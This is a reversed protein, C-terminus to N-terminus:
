FRTDDMDAQVGFSSTGSPLEIGEEPNAEVDKITKSAARNIVYSDIHKLHSRLFGKFHNCFKQEREEELIKEEDDKARKQSEPIVDDLVNLEYQTFVFEMLKRVFVVALVMLPFVISAKSTKILWLLVLCTLQVLTFLHVRWLKVHRLYVYDPQHKAPILYLMIRDVFQVGRLSSIGMYLFVGFLVPMPIFKLVSTLLSSVGILAFVLIGTVRQERCGEVKPPEGPITTESMVRLSDVHNISLVTAAVFWPMGLVSMVFLLIAIVLLDLHYGFGKKLKNERRNVIVATIQQDMFILISCLLAPVIAAFYTWWPNNFLPIVWGRDPRTPRFTDPVTLKPTPIGVWIDIGTMALFAMFVGFDSIIYRVKTPFFNSNRFNKLAYALVFTGFFLACSFLFVDPVPEHHTECDGTLTGNVAKCDEETVETWNYHTPDITENQYECMCETVNMAHEDFYEGIKVNTKIPYEHSIEFLNEFAEVIFIFSILSSFAEETFRTFYRVLASADTAVLIICIVCTWFGIWVRFSIYDIGFSGCLQYMITEFILIPGTSGIITLPQGSFLHYAVGCIAAGILSEFAAIYDDTADGLLGGFTIIPTICAIYMFVFSALCQINLAHYYESWYFPAKKKIDQILGGFLRGTRALDFKDDDEEKIADSPHIFHQSQRRMESSLTQKPPEIRINPDWTGPPLVTVQELFEDLGALLDERDRAKYAVEHFVDDTMLTAMCRGIERYKKKDETPPGLLLFVFRTPIPVETIESLIKGEALRIFAVMPKEVFDVEGVLVNSAEAGAPIKRLFKAKENKVEKEKQDLSESTGVRGVSGRSETRAGEPMKTLANASSNKRMEGEKMQAEQEMSVTNNGTSQSRGIDSMSRDMGPFMSSKRRGKNYAKNEPEKKKKQKHHRHRTLLAERAIIRQDEELVNTAVLHDLALDIIQELDEAEMNLQVGGNRIFKRLEFLSHLSLTAVHPKSWRGAGHDVNEEYKVWRATEKWELLRGEKDYFLEEMESYVPPTEKQNEGEGGLLFQVRQQPTEGVENEFNLIQAAPSMPSSPGNSVPSAHGNQHGKKRDKDAGGFMEESRHNSIDKNDIHRSARGAGTDVVVEPDEGVPGNMIGRARRIRTSVPSEQLLGRDRSVAPTYVPTSTSFRDDDFSCEIEDLPRLRYVQFGHFTM